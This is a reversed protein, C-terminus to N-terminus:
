TMCMVISTEASKKKQHTSSGRGAGNPAEYAVRMTMHQAAMAPVM